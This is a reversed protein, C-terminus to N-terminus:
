ETASRLMAERNELGFIEVDVGPSYHVLPAGEVEPLGGAQVLEQELELLRAPVLPYPRHHIQGTLLREGREVHLLYREVLFHDLSGPEATQPPAASDIEWRALLKPRRGSRRELEYRIRNEERLLSMRAHFYPLGWGIRAGIVALRSEADLSLFYVGPDRGRLHAYTRVNTELFDFGLPEPVARARVGFMAFAVIGVYAVGDHLDLDLSGPLVRRVAESPLPWHLFLLDRWRQTGRAAGAPRRTPALRDV